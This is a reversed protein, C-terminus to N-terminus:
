QSSKTPLQITFVTGRGKESSVHIQGGHLLVLKKVISLGLGFEGFPNNKRSVDAKYFRHWINEIDNPDIGVGTDEIEIITQNDTQRGRLIIKGNETFQISNKSINLLIQILRDYDAYVIPNGEIEISLKNKKEKAQLFLQEKIIEFVENLPIEEMTLKVQNSRIKEYDLNEKVLRILRKTEKSVLEMGREKEKEPIMGNRLGEVVGSITTLPTKLEHSVDAIFQRRRNELSEIEEQSEKLRNVMKNFDSALEGIEDYNSVPVHIDYNGSTVASTANQLQKIRRVHIKSLIWSLFLAIISVIVTTYILYQNFQSIMDRAGSVPSAMLLGGLFIGDKQNPLIVITAAQDFRKLDIHVVVKEGNILREWEEDSFQIQIHRNSLPYLVKGEADFLHFFINRSKLVQEYRNLTKTDVIDIFLSYDLESLLSDGYQILEEEKNQFVLSVMYQSVVITLMTFSLLIIGIHSLMQQYLYKFKM